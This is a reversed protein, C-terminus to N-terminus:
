ASKKRPGRRANIESTPWILQTACWTCVHLMQYVMQDGIEGGDERLVRARRRRCVECRM